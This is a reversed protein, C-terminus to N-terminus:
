RIAVAPTELPSYTLDLFLVKFERKTHEWQREGESDGKEERFHFM